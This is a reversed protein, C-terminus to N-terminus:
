TVASFDHLVVLFEGIYRHLFCRICREDSVYVQVPQGQGVLNVNNVFSSMYLLDQKLAVM